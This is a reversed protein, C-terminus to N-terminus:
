TLLWRNGYGISSSLGTSIKWHHDTKFFYRQVASSTSDLMGRVDIWPVHYLGLIRILNDITEHSRDCAFGRPQMDGDRNIKLPLQVYLFEKGSEKLNSRLMKLSRVRSKTDFYPMHTNILMGGSSRFVGNCVSRGTARVWGGYLHIMEDHFACKNLLAKHLQDRFGMKEATKEPKACVLNWLTIGSFALLFAIWAFAITVTIRKM